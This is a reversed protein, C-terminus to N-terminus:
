PTARARARAQSSRKLRRRVKVTERAVKRALKSVAIRPPKECRPLREARALEVARWLYWAAVSRFPKWREGYEALARPLPMGSLGYALRFGNRVGFDDVPLVDPRELQFILMMEVTWRGIGRVATLREIIELDTLATLQEIGPVVGALTKDALDRLAAVKAGSFGVARLREQETALLQEPTPFDAPAYLAVLRDLIRNAATGNLQQHAIARALAEFPSHQVRLAHPGLRFPGAAAILGAM